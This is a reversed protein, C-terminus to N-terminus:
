ATTKNKYPASVKQDNALRALQSYAHITLSVLSQNHISIVRRWENIVNFVESINSIKECIGFFEQLHLLIPDRSFRPRM